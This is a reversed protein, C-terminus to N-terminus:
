REYFKSIREVSQCQVDFESKSCILCNINIINVWSGNVIVALNRYSNNNLKYPPMEITLRPIQSTHYDDHFHAWSPSLISLIFILQKDRKISRHFSSLYLMKVRDPWVSSLPFQFHSLGKDQSPIESAQLTYELYQLLLYM